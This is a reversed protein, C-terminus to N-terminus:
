SVGVDELEHGFEFIHRLFKNYTSTNYKAIISTTPFANQSSQITLLLLKGRKLPDNEDVELPDRADKDM